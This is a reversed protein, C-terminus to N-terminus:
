DIFLVYIYLFYRFLKWNINITWGLSHNCLSCTLPAQSLVCCAFSRAAFGPVWSSPPLLFGAGGLQGIWVCWVCIGMCVVDMCMVFVCWVLMGCVCCLCMYMYWVCGLSLMCLVYVHVCMVFMCWVCWLCGHLCMSVYWVCWFCMSVCWVCMVYLYVVCMCVGVFISVCWVCMVFVHVCLNVCMCM